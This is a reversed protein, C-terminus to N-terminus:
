RASKTLDGNDDLLGQVNYVCTDIQKEANEKTTIVLVEDEIIWTLQLTSSADAAARLSVLYQSDTM